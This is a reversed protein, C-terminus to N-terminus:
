LMRNVFQAFQALTARVDDQEDEDPMPHTEVYYAARLLFEDSGAPQANNLVVAHAVAQLFAEWSKQSPTVMDGEALTERWIGQWRSSRHTQPM